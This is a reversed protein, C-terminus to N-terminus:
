MRAEAAPQRRDIDVCLLGELLEGRTGDGNDNVGDLGDLALNDDVGEAEDVWLGEHQTLLRALSCGVQTVQVLWRNLSEDM